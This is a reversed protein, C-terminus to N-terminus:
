MLPKILDLAKGLSTTLKSPEARALKLKAWALKSSELARGSSTTLKSPEACALKLKSWPIGRPKWIICTCADLKSLGSIYPYKASWHPAPRPESPRTKVKALTKGDQEKVKALSMGVSKFNKKTLVKNPKSTEIVQLNDGLWLGFCQKLMRRCYM